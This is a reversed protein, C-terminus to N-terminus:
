NKKPKWERALRQAEAIQDPTMKRAVQDRRSNQPPAWVPSGGAALTFWMHAHVYDQAVGQGNEYMAGLDSQAGANGQEAAKRLWKVAEAYDQPLGGQGDVYMGALIYQGDADGQEAANRLWKVAEASNQPVGQGLIYMAGLKSQARAFGQEAAKRFWRAAAAYDQPVGQGLSYIIGLDFQVAWNGQDAFPRWLRLATAYDGRKYAVDADEIPGAAVPATLSTFLALLAAKVFNRV